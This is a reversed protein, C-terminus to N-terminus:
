AEDGLRVHLVKLGRHISGVFRMLRLWRWREPHVDAPYCAEIVTLGPVLRDLDAADDLGWGFTAGTARITKSRRGASRLLLPSIAEIWAECGPFRAGLGSLLTRVQAEELYMLLGEVIFLVPGSEVRDFWAQELVSGEVLRYRPCPTVLSAKLAVVEPMDLDTWRVRGDDVRWFRTCLGAGLNVVQGGPHETLWASVGRDLIDTRGVVAEVEAWEGAYFALNADILGAIREAEPDTYASDARRSESVRAALPILLTEQVGALRVRTIEAM